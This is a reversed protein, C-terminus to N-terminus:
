SRCTELFEFAIFGSSLHLELFTSLPLKSLDIKLHVDFIRERLEPRSICLTM